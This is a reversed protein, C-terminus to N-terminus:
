LSQIPLVSHQLHDSFNVTSDHNTIYIRSEDTTMHKIPEKVCGTALLTALGITVIIKRM